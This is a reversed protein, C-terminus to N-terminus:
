NAQTFDDLGNQEGLVTPSDPTLRNIEWDLEGMARVQGTTFQNTM